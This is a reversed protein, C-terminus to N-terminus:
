VLRKVRGSHLTLSTKAVLCETIEVIPLAKLANVIHAQTPLEEWTRRHWTLDGTATWAERYDYSVPFQTAYSAVPGTEKNGPEGPIYKWGLLNAQAREKRFMAFADTPMAVLDSAQMQLMLHGNNSLTTSWTGRFTRYDEIQGYIKPIGQQERGTLIPAALDEWLVLAYSGSVPGSAAPYAAQVTVSIINYDRGGLWSIDRNMTYTVTVIPPGDLEFPLPLYSTLLEEDTLYNISIVTVDDYLSTGPMVNELRKFAPSGFHAPMM